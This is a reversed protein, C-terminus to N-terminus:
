VNFYICICNNFRQICLVTLRNTLKM